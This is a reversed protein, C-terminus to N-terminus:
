DGEKKNVLVYDLNYKEINISKSEHRFWYLNMLILRFIGRINFKWDIM